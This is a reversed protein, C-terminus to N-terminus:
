NLDHAVGGALLGLAEMKQAQQLQKLAELKDNELKKRQSIDHIVAITYFCEDIKINVYSVEVFFSQGDKNEINLAINKQFQDPLRNQFVHNLTLEADHSKEKFPIFDFLSKGIVQKSSYGFIKEAAANWYSVKGDNNIMLIAENATDTITRHIQEKKRLEKKYAIVSEKMGQFTDATRQIEVLRTKVKKPSSYNHNIIDLAERDLESIPRIIKGAVFLGIVTAICSLIFTLLLNIRQNTTIKGLYDDEPIYVGIMWSIKSEQVPTFMTYYKENDAEFAAFISNKRVLQPDDSRKTQQISDFAQKCVSNSLESLKPLRVKSSEKDDSYKLQEPDPYAIVNSDQDVMFAIGTKGVRLSGIFKSLVDLEIDVGVVGLLKGKADYIPGATTIGPKQSTFFIYPNTWIVQKEKTAKIYWPRSRPDYTDKPNSKEKIINMDADRFIMKVQRGQPSNEIFKTRYGNSAYSNNRNVYYFEGEPNALYIGAFQPYIELQDFFYKELKELHEADTNVVNSSILRKTLHAAGRAISFFNQTEKLTLDSINEMIDITHLFMVKKTSFYSFPTTILLTGWILAICGIIIVGRISIKM